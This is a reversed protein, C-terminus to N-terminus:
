APYSLVLQAAYRDGSRATPNPLCCSTGDFVAFLVRDEFGGYKTKVVFADQNRKNPSKPYYGRRSMYAYHLDVNGTSYRSSSNPAKLRTRANTTTLHYFVHLACRHSASRSRGVSKRYEHILLWICVLTRELSGSRGRTTEDEETPVGNHKTSSCGM